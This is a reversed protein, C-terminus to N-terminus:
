RIYRSGATEGIRRQKWNAVVGHTGCFQRAVLDARQLSVVLFHAEHYDILYGHYPVALEVSNVRVQLRDKAVLAKPPKCVSVTPSRM